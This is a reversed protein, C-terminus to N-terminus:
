QKGIKKILKKLILESNVWLIAFSFRSIVVALACEVFFPIDLPLMRGLGLIRVCAASLVSM